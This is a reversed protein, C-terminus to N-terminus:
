SSFLQMLNAIRPLELMCSRSGSDPRKSRCITIAPLLRRSHYFGQADSVAKFEAKLTTDALTLAAGAIAAGSPDQIVGSLSGAALARACAAMFLIFAILKRM